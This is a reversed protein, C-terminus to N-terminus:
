SKSQNTVIITGSGGELALSTGDELLFSTGDELEFYTPVTSKNQNVPTLTLGGWTATTDGWTAFSDGWFYIGAKRQGYPSAIHKSQNTGSVAM